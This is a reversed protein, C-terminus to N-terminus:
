GSMLQFGHKVAPDTRGPFLYGLGDDNGMGPVHEAPFHGSRCEAPDRLVVGIFPDEEDAGAVPYPKGPGADIRQIGQRLRRQSLHGNVCGCTLFEDVPTLAGESEPRVGMIPFMAQFHLQREELRYEFLHRRDNRDDDSCLAKGDEPFQGFCQLGEKRFLVQKDDTGVKRM